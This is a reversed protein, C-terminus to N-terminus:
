PHPVSRLANAARRLEERQADPLMLGSDALARDIATAIASLNAPWSARVSAAFQARAIEYAAEHQGRASLDDLVRQVAALAADVDGSDGGMGWLM